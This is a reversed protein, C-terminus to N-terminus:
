RDLYGLSLQHIFGQTLTTNWIQTYKLMNQTKHAFKKLQCKLYPSSFHYFYNRISFNASVAHESTKRLFRLNYTSEQFLDAM